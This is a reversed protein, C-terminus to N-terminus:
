AFTALFADSFFILAVGAAVIIGLWLALLRASRRMFDEDVQTAADAM